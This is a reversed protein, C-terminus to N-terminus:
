EPTVKYFRATEDMNYMDRAQYYSTINRLSTLDGETAAHDVSSSIDAINWTTYQQRKGQKEMAYTAQFGM